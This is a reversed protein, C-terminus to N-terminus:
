CRKLLDEPIWDPRVGDRLEFETNLIESLVKARQLILADEMKKLLEDKDPHNNLKTLEVMVKHFDTHWEKSDSYYLKTLIDMNIETDNDKDSETIKVSRASNRKEWFEKELKELSEVLNDHIKEKLTAYLNSLGDHDVTYKYFNVGVIKCIDDIKNYIVVNNHVGSYSITM